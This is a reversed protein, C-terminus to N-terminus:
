YSEEPSSRIVAELMCKDADTLKAHKQKVRLRNLLEAYALDDRQRMIQTLTIMQFHDKWFDLMHDEYVCLPKARGLPPLQFFDGVALISLGGFPKQNGKIQQLRWNVYAFLQKSVMSIEDIILIHANSLDARMEDLSNGLGQYPPRLSRPLKLLCHLTKGSINFAATGTFATLLVTPQSIDTHERMCPLRRLIKSAETYISKIVHSKGVGAGGNLFYLFPQPSEGSVCRKCWDRVAYFISAQTQNLSQYMKRIQAHNLQTAEMLPMATNSFSTSATYEPIDEQENVENPDTPEREMISELRILENAPALTTWADEIPGNQEFDEIAKEIAENHKEYKERNENVINFVRQLEDTGPLKVSAFAYFSEYTPFRTSKLQEDRRYPLYLKLLTGYFKEPTKQQSFRAFRIVAPKGRTRKQIDWITKFHCFMKVKQRDEM